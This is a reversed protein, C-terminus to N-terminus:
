AWAFYMSDEPYLQIVAEVGNRFKHRELFSCKVLMKLQVSGFRGWTLIKVVTLEEQM